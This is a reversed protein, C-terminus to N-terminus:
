YHRIDFVCQYRPKKNSTDTYIYDSNLKASIIRGLSIMSEMTEIVFANLMAAKYTSEAYSQLAFSSSRVHNEKWSGLKQIVVFSAPMEAPVEMYVPVDLVNKLYELVTLEIIEKAM